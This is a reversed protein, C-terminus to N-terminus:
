LCRGGRPQRVRVNKLNTKDATPSFVKHRMAASEKKRYGKM